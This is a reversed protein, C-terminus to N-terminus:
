TVSINIYPICLLAAEGTKKLYVPISGIKYLCCRRGTKKLLAPMSGIKYVLAYGEGIKKLFLSM